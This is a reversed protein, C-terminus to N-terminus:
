AVRCASALSDAVLQLRPAPAAPLAATWQGVADGGPPTAAQIRLADVLAALQGSIQDLHQSQAELEVISRDLESEASQIRVFAERRQALVRRRERLQDDMQASIARVWLEVEVAANEFVLRLKSLLMRMFNDMFGPQARRWVQTVGLYRSYGDELRDLEACFDTLVPRPSAGLSFGFEANIQRQSAGVMEDIEATRSDADSILARLAVGLSAFARAAGLKLLSADAEQRMQQVAQRVSDGSLSDMVAQQQKALVGRLAALRPVCREFDAAETALRQSMLALRGGSKGRLSCLEFLQEAIQQQRGSLQRLATQQLSLVGDEIMRGMVASRQPLLQAQLAQELAPLRSDALAADDGQVRATLAARASLPFVREAAVGLTDAVVSCQRQLQAEIQEPSLLPDCLTDIKNLVVFRECARDGLHDRWVALDSRTVGTDAALLYVTAHASPLLGLTLEPEAGIANLGPTDIVVLGRRLMPHPYNILAHRWAPVEVLDHADRPPNDDPHEDDWFGLARAEDVPVQRTRTVAQLVDAMADPDVLPFALSHWLEPQERLATVTQGSSRTAIPLLTLSPPLQADWALEVPCMTTRGPTAPMVRRGTDAFFLANILESKGRSFEAVFAVVLRDTALRQRLAAALAQTKADHLGHETLLSVCQAIGRDLARRWNALADLGSHLATSM